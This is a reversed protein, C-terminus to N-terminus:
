NKKLDQAEEEINEFVSMIANEKYRVPVVKKIDDVGFRKLEDKPLPESVTNFHKKEGSSDVYFGDIEIALIDYFEIRTEVADDRIEIKKGKQEYAYLSKRYELQEAMDPQRFITKIPDGDVVAEYKKKDLTFAM